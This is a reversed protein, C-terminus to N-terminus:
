EAVVNGLFTKPYFQNLSWGAAYRQYIDHTDQDMRPLLSVINEVSQPKYKAYWDTDGMLGSCHSSGSTQWRYVYQPSGHECADGPAVVSSLAQLYEQDFTARVTDIWPVEEVLERSIAISGHFRGTGPEEMPPQHFASIIRSPKSWRHDQLTRAHTALYDPLYCDDDDWVAVADYSAYHENALRLMINYKEGLSPARERTSYVYVNPLACWTRELTGLDDYIMLNKHPYSQAAFCAISNNLLEPKRGYTPMLCLFSITM